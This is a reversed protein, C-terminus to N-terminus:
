KVSCTLDALQDAGSTVTVRQRDCTADTGTVALDYTGPPLSFTFAGDDGTTLGAVRHGNRSVAVTASMTAGASPGPGGSMHIHGHVTGPPGSSTDGETSACAALSLVTAVVAAHLMRRTM